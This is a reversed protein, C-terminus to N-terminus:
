GENLIKLEEEVKLADHCNEKTVTETAPGVLREYRKILNHDVPPLNLASLITNLQTEEIGGDLVVLALKFNVHYKSRTSKGESASSKVLRIEKCKPCKLHFVSAVGCIDEQILFRFSLPWDCTTCWM